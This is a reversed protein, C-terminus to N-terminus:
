SLTVFLVISLLLTGVGAGVMAMRHDQLRANFRDAVKGYWEGFGGLKRLLMSILNALAYTVLAGILVALVFNIAGPWGSKGLVAMAAGTGMAFIGAFLLLVLVLLAYFGIKLAPKPLRALLADAKSTDLSWNLLKLYFDMWKWAAHPQIGHSRLFYAAILPTIMRAVLLSMM